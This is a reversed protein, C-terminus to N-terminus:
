RMIKNIRKKGLSVCPREILYYVPSAIAVSVLVTTFATILISNMMLGHFVFKNVLILVASHFLYYSYSIKGLFVFLPNYFKFRTTLLIFFLMASFYSIVYKQWTEGWGMDVNYGVVSIIPLTVLFASIYVKSFFGALSSRDLLVSAWIRGFCMVSLALPLAVPLKILYFGRVISMVLAVVLFFASLVFFAKISKLYDMYFLIAVLFYFVIEIQLTWYVGVVNDFGIFQQFMSFNVIFDLFDLNSDEVIFGFTIFGIVVSLWYAPYLRYLRSVLFVLLVRKKDLNSKISNPVIFGSVMFFVVVGFKGLDLYRTFLDVVLIEFSGDLKFEKYFMFYHALSVSIAALGRVGDLYFLRNM